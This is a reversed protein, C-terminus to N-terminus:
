RSAGLRVFAASSALVFLAPALATVVAPLGASLGFNTFMQQSLHFGLGALTGIALREALRAGLRTGHGAGLLFSLALGVMAAIYFPSSARRLWAIEFPLTSQKQRRLTATAQALEHLSLEDPSLWLARLRQPALNTGWEMEAHQRTEVGDPTIRNERLDHLAWQGANQSAHRARLVRRLARQGDLELVTVATLSGDPRLEAAHIVQQGDRIWLGAHTNLMRGGSMALARRMHAVASLPAAVWEAFLIGGLGIVVATALAAATVRRPSIGAAQMAVLENHQMMQGIALMAGLLASAPFLGYAESPLNLLVYALVAGIGYGPSDAARLEEALTLVSFVTVLAAQALAFNQVLVRAIHRDLLSM